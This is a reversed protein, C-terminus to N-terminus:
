ILMNLKVNLGLASKNTNTRKCSTVYLNMAASRVQSHTDMTQVSMGRQTLLTCCYPSWNKMKETSLSCIGVPFPITPFHVRIIWCSIGFFPEMATDKCRNMEHKQQKLGEWHACIHGWRERKIYWLPSEIFKVTHGTQVPVVWLTLYCDHRPAKYIIFM